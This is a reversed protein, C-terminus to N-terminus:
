KYFMEAYTRKTYTTIAMHLSVGFLKPLTKKRM